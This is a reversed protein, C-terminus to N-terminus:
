LALMFSTAWSASGGGGECPTVKNMFVYSDHWEATVAMVVVHFLRTFSVVGFKVEFRSTTLLHQLIDAFDVTNPLNLNRIPYPLTYLTATVNDVM